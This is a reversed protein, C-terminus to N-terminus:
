VKMMYDIKDWKWIGQTAYFGNEIKDNIAFWRSKDWIYQTTYFGNENRYKAHIMSNKLNLGEWKAVPYTETVLCLAGRRSSCFIQRKARWFNELIEQNLFFERRFCLNKMRRTSCPLPISQNLDLRSLIGMPAVKIIRPARFDMM